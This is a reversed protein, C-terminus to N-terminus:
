PPWSRVRPVAHGRATGGGRLGPGCLERGAGRRPSPATGPARGESPGGEVRRCPGALARQREAARWTIGARFSRDERVKAEGVASLRACSGTDGQLSRALYPVPLRWWRWLAQAVGPGVGPRTSEENRETAGRRARSAPVSDGLAPACPLAGGEGRAASGVGGTVSRPM